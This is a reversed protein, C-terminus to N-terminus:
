NLFEDLLPFTWLTLVRLALGNLGMSAKLCTSKDYFFNAFHSTCVLLTFKDYSFKDYFVHEDTLAVGNGLPKCFVVAEAIRLPSEIDRIIDIYRGKMRCNLGKWQPPNGLTFMAGCAPNQTAIPSDGLLL